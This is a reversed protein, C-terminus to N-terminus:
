LQEYTQEFFVLVLNFAAVCKDCLFLEVHVYGAEIVLLLDVM